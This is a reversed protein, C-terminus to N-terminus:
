RAATDLPRPSTMADLERVVSDTRSPLRRVEFALAIEVVGYVMSWLGIALVAAVLTLGPRALLWFSFLTEVIGFALTLGWYPLMDRGSIAGAIAMVGSFLVWWGIFAALVLLTPGPWAWVAVGVGAELLGLAVSWSRVAGDIPVSFTTVLGRFVLVAGVFVALDGVTWDTFVIISGAVVSIIGTILVVWWGRSVDDIQQRTWWTASLPNTVIM